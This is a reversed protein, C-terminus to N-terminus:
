FIILIYLNKYIDQLYNLALDDNKKLIFILVFYFYFFFLSVNKTIIKM